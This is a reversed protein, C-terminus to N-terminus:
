IRFDAGPDTRVLATGPWTMVHDSGRMEDRPEKKQRHVEHGASEEPGRHVLGGSEPM